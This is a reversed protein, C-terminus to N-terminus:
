TFPLSLQKVIEPRCQFVYDCYACSPTLNKRFNHDTISKAMRQFVRDLLDRYEKLDGKILFQNDSEYRLWYILYGVPYTGFQQKYLMVNMAAQIKLEDPLITSPARKEKFVSDMTSTSYKVVLNHSYGKILEGKEIIEPRMTKIWSIDSPVIHDLKGSLYTYPLGDYKIPVVYVIKKIRLPDPSDLNQVWYNKICVAGIKSQEKAVKKADFSLAKSSVKTAIDWVAYWRKIATEISYYYFKRNGPHKQYLNRIFKSVEV